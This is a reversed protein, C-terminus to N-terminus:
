LQKLIKQIRFVHPVRSKKKESVWKEMTSEKVKSRRFLLMGKGLREAEVVKPV